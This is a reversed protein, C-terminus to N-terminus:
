KLHADVEIADDSSVATFTLTAGDANANPPLGVLDVTFRRVQAVRDAPDIPEPLPLAWNPTPGEAFLDVPMGEPAIVEVIVRAHGDDEERSVSRIAFGVGAGLRARRPVRAEAAVLASEEASREGTLSLDLNAEAPFCVDKCFAYGLTLHLSSPKTADRATIRLPFVVDGRYGIAHGGVGDDFREPAPWLLTVSKVNESGVFDFTPPVGSDGPYRWYTHWGPDLRIEIGARLRVADASKLAGGAILRAAAHLETKWPSADQGQAITVSPIFILALTAVTARNRATCLTM